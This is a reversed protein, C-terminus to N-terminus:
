IEKNVCNLNGEINRRIDCLQTKSNKCDICNKKRFNQIESWRKNQEYQKKKKYERMINDAIRSQM